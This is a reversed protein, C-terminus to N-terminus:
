LDDFTPQQRPEANRAEELCRTTFEL